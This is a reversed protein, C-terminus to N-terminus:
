RRERHLFHTFIDRPLPISLAHLLASVQGRHSNGHTIVHALMEERTMRGASGDTFTFELPEALQAESLSDVYQLYWEDVRRVPARLDGLKPIEEANAAKFGHQEAVVNAKFIQDVILVHSVIRAALHMEQPHAAEPVGQLATFLEGNAWAKYQFLSSFLKKSM